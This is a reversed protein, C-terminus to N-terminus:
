FRGATAASQERKVTVGNLYALPLQPEQGRNSETRSILIEDPEQSIDAPREPRQQDDYGTSDRTQQPSISNQRNDSSPAAIKQSQGANSFPNLPSIRGGSMYISSGNSPGTAPNAASFTGSLPMGSLHQHSPRRAKNVDPMSFPSSNRAAQHASAQRQILHAHSPHQPNAWPTQEIFQEEAPKFSSASVAARVAVFDQIPLAQQPRHHAHRKQQLAGMRELDQDIETQTAASMAPAAPFGVYKSIGALLSVEKTFANHHMVQKSRKTPFKITFDEIHSGYGRRDHQIDYWQKGLEELKKERIERVEQYFQALIQTRKGVAERQISELRYETLRAEIRLKQDRRADVSQMMELYIPHTPSDSKLMAEERELQALREEHLRERFSIFHREIDSLQDLAARRREQEEENRAAAEAEDAEADAVDEPEEGDEVRPEHINSIAEDEGPDDAQEPRQDVQNTASDKSQLAQELQSRSVEVHEGSGLAEDDTGDEDNRNFGEVSRQQGDHGESEADSLNNSIPNLTEPDVIASLTDDNADEKKQALISGTRKRAHDEVDEDENSDRDTLQSRKRKNNTKNDVVIPFQMDGASGELSTAATQSDHDSTTHLFSKTSEVVSVVDSLDDVEDNDNDATTQPLSRSPSREYVRSETKSDLVVDKHTRVKHPSDELRETEAESDNATSYIGIGNELNNYSQDGNEEHTAPGALEDQEPDKDEIDSLSSSGDGFESRVEQQSAQFDPPLNNGIQSGLSATM